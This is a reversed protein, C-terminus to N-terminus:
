LISMSSSALRRDLLKCMQDWTLNTGAGRCDYSITEADPNRRLHLWLLAGASHSTEMVSGLTTSALPDLFARAGRALKGRAARSM